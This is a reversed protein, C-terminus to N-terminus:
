VDMTTARLVAVQDQLDVAMLLFAEFRPLLTALQTELDAIRRQAAEWEEVSISAPIFDNSEPIQM